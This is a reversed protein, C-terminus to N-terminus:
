RDRGDSVIEGVLAAYGCIDVWHDQKRPSTKSRAIKLLIMMNAVDVVTFDHDLYSAWLAAITEFNDKADGYDADRDGSIVSNAIALIEDRTVM